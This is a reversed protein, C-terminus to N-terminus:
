VLGPPKYRVVAGCHCGDAMLQKIGCVCVRNSKAETIHIAVDKAKAVAFNSPQTTNIAYGWTVSANGGRVYGPHLEFFYAAMGDLTEGPYLSSELDISDNTNVAVVTFGDGDTVDHYAPVGNPTRFGWKWTSYTPYASKGAAYLVRDGVQPTEGGVYVYTSAM